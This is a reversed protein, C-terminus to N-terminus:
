EPLFYEAQENEKLNRYDFEDVIVEELGDGGRIEFKTTVHIFNSGETLQPSVGRASAVFGLPGCYNQFRAALNIPVGIYELTSSRPHYLPYVRGKAVGVRVANPIANYGIQKRLIPIHDRYLYRVQHLGNLVGIFFKTASVPDQPCRWVILAGDGLFKFYVPINGGYEFTDSTEGRHGNLCHGVLEFTEQLLAPIYRTAAERACFGTFNELDIVCAVAEFPRDPLSIPFTQM